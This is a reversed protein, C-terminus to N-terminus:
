GDRKGSPVSRFYLASQGPVLWEGQPDLPPTGTGGYSPHESSWAITWSHEWPPALLPEPVIAPQWDPGLNVVLLRDGHEGGAYRLVFIREGLVAGDVAGLAAQAIARDSRRIAILDRHLAYAEAHRQRESLDLVCREFIARDSPDALAARMSPDNVSPFQTLFESRGERVQDALPPAHDAFFTFPASSAFEQGQFLMPTSPGLLVLATMARFAGAAARTHLRGGGPSNAVQDHNELCHVFAAPPVGRTPEGRSKGQWAYRQGQYLYGRKAASVFEQPSGAYDTYYAERRGTLAVVAAHHFDDNWVADLGYGGESPPRVLRSEQPENEAVVYIRRRGAAERARAVIDAIVHRASADIISQTADLRLGDLHFEDIWYAANEVFFERVPGADEGDFNIPDGWENEYRTSFYRDSFRSLYCGDPGVHNYVVDLIVGLRLAHARDVFARFDDPSGYLRTPAYLDVGDYGWGFSGVFDAVPMVEVMTIGLAALEPLQEAASRWTGEPTFTGVHMEYIVQGDRGVGTWGGDSWAFAGPDVIQSAGHPGEPQFRSAPDPFWADPAPGVALRYRDGPGADPVLGSFYGGPEPQLPALRAGSGRELAVAVEEHKPAWVRFHTGEGQPEAGIAFRRARRSEQRIEGLQEIGGM